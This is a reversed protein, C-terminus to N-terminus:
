CVLEENRESLGNFEKNKEAFIEEDSKLDERCQLFFNRFGVSCTKVIATRM